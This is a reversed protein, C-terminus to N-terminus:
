CGATGMLDVLFALLSVHFLPAFLAYLEVLIIVNVIFRFWTPNRGCCVSFVEMANRRRNQFAIFVRLCQMCLLFPISHDSKLLGKHIEKDLMLLLVVAGVMEQDEHICYDARCLM